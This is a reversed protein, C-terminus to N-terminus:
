DIRREDTQKSKSPRGPRRVPITSLEDLSIGTFAHIINVDDCLLIWARLQLAKALKDVTKLEPTATKGIELLQFYKYDLGAKEALQEQTLNNRQRLLQVIRRFFPHAAPM